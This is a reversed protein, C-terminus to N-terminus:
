QSARWEVSSLCLRLLHHSRGHVTRGEELCTRHVPLRRTHTISPTELIGKMCQTSTGVPIDLSLYRIEFEWARGGEM